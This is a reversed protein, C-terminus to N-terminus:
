DVAGDLSNITVDSVSLYNGSASTLAAEAVEALSHLSKVVM